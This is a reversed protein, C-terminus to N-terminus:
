SSDANGATTIFICTASQSMDQYTSAHVIHQFTHAANFNAQRSAIYSYNVGYMCHAHLEVSYLTSGAKRQRRYLDLERTQGYVILIHM